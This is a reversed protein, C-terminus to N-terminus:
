SPEPAVSVQVGSGQVTLAPGPATVNSQEGATPSSDASSDSEGPTVAYADMVEGYFDDFADRSLRRLGVRVKRLRLRMATEADCERTGAMLGDDACATDCACDLVLHAVAWARAETATIANLQTLGLVVDLPMESAFTFTETGLTLVVPSKRAARRAAKAPNATM